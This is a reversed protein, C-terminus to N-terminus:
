LKITMSKLDILSYLFLMYLLSKDTNKSSYLSSSKWVFFPIKGFAYEQNTGYFDAHNVKSFSSPDRYSGQKRLLTGAFGVRVLLGWIRRKPESIELSQVNPSPLFKLLTANSSHVQIYCVLM